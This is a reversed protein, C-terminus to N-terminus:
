KWLLPFLGLMYLHVAPPKIRTLKAGRLSTSRVGRALSGPPHTIIRSSQFSITHFVNAHTDRETARRQPLHAYSNTPLFIRCTRKKKTKKNPNTPTPQAKENPNPNKEYSESSPFLYLASRQSLTTTLATLSLRAHTTRMDNAQAEYRAVGM